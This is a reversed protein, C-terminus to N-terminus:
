HWCPVATIDHTPQLGLVCQRCSCSVTKSRARNSRNAAWYKRQVKIRKEVLGCRRVEAEDRKDRARPQRMGITEGPEQGDGVGVYRVM